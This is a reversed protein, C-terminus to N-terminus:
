RPSTSQYGSNGSSSYGGGRSPLCGTMRGVFTISGIILGIVIRRVFWSGLWDGIGSSRREQEQRSRHAMGILQAEAVAAEEAGRNAAGAGAATEMLRKPRERQNQGCSPCIMENAAIAKKCNICYIPDLEM